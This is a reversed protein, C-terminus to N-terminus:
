ERLRDQGLLESPRGSGPAFGARTLTPDTHASTGTAQVLPARREDPDVSNGTARLWSRCQRKRRRAVPKRHASLRAATPCVRAPRARNPGSRRRGRRGPPTPSRSRRAAVLPSRCRRLPTMGRREKEVRMSPDPLQAAVGVVALKGRLFGGSEVGQKDLLAGRHAVNSLPPISSRGGPKSRESKGFTQEMPLSMRSCFRANQRVM